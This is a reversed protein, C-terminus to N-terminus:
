LYLNAHTCMSSESYDACGCLRILTMSPREIPLLPGFTEEPSFGISQDSQTSACVSKFIEQVSMWAQYRSSNGEYKSYVHVKIRTM